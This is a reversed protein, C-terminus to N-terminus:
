TQKVSIEARRRALGGLKSRRFPRRRAAPTKETEERKCTFCFERMLIDGLSGPGFGANGCAMLRRRPRDGPLQRRAAERPARPWASQTRGRHHAPRGSPKHYNKKAAM